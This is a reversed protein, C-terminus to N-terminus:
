PHSSPPPAKPKIKRYRCVQMLSNISGKIGPLMEKQESAHLAKLERWTKELRDLILRQKKFEEEEQECMVAFKAIEREADEADEVPVTPVPLVLRWLLVRKCLLMELHKPVVTYYRGLSTNCSKCKIDLFIAGYDFDDEDNATQKVKHDIVTTVDDVHSLVYGLTWKRDHSASVM